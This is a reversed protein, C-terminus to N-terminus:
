FEMSCNLIAGNANLDPVISFSTTLKKNSAKILFTADLVSIVRNAIAAGIALKKNMIMSQKDRRINKYRNWDKNNQWNWSNEGTYSHSLIYTNYGEPDYNLILYYNRAMMEHYSNYEDSSRWQHLLEYYQSSRDKPIDAKSFAFQKYSNTLWNVENGYRNANFLIILDTTLFFVGRTLNGAYIEGTGPLVASLLMAKPISKAQLTISILLISILLVWALNRM